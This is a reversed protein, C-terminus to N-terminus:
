VLTKSIVNLMIKLLGVLVPVFLRVLFNFHGNTIVGYKVLIFGHTSRGNLM